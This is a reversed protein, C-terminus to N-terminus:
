PLWRLWWPRDLKDGCKRCYEEYFDEECTWRHCISCKILDGPLKWNDVTESATYDSGGMEMKAPKTPLKGCIHCSYKRQLRELNAEYERKEKDEVAKKIQQKREKREIEDAEIKKDVKVRWDDM